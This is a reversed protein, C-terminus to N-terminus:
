NTSGSQLYHEWDSLVGGLRADYTHELIIPLYTTIDKPLSKRNQFLARTLHDDKQTIAARIYTRATENTIANIQAALANALQPDKRRTAILLVFSDNASDLQQLFQAFSGDHKALADAWLDRDNGVELNDSAAFFAEVAHKADYRSVLDIATKRVRIDAAALGIKATDLVFSKVDEHSEKQLTADAYEVVSRMAQKQVYADLHSLGDKACQKIRSDGLRALAILQEGLAHSDREDSLVAVIEDAARQYKLRGLAEAATRRVDWQEHTLLPVLQEAFNWQPHYGAFWAGASLAHWDDSKLQEQTRERIRDTRDDSGADGRRVLIMQGHSLRPLTLEVKGDRYEFPIPTLQSEDFVKVSHPKADEKLAIEVNECEVPRMNYLVIVTGDDSTMPSAMVLPESLVLPREVERKHLPQTLLARGTDAWIVPYGGRRAALATYTLGARHAVYSLKGRGINKEVWALRDDDYTAVVDADKADLDSPMGTQNVEHPRFASKGDWPKVILSSEAPATRDVDYTRVLGALKALLDQPENFENRLAADACTWLLGGSKVWNAIGEQVDGAVVPDLVYLADYDALAGAMVQDETVLEPQYYEHSLALFSARKDAFSSQPNWYENSISYLMAVRSPRMRANALVDDVQAARNNTRHVAQYSGDSESWFGETVAYFPGYNFYSLLRVQNGLMTYARFESPWVCHMMPYNLPQQGRRRAGANFMAVSYAVAQHSDWRWGGSSMWDSVGPMMSESGSALQFMDLPMTSPFYLSHGSLAVFGKMSSNPANRQISEAALNFMRPTLYGSYRRSWYYLRADEKTEALSAVTLMRVDEWSSKGFTQPSLGQQKAWVRFGAHAQPMGGAEMWNKSVADRLSKPKTTDTGKADGLLDDIDLDNILKKKGGGIKIEALKTVIHEDKRIERIALSRVTKKPGVVAFGGSKPLGTFQHVQKGRVFLVATDGEYVIKFPTPTTGINASPRAQSANREPTIGKTTTALNIDPAASVRGMRWEAYRVPKAPDGVAVQFGVWNGQRQVEGELVCDRYDTKRTVLDSGGSVDSYKEGSEDKSFRWLPSSMAERSIEVPEDAIQFISVGDYFDRRRSFYDRYYEDYKQQVQEENFPIMSPPWYHGAHSSWGYLKRNAVPDSADGVCNMGLLRLTKVMYQAADGTAAGWVNSFYLDGRTLPFVQDGTAAVARDYNERAHDRFTRLLHLNTEFDTALSVRLGEPDTWPIERLVFDDHPFVAFQTAGRHVGTAKDGVQLLLHAQANGFKPAREIDQLNYWRTFGTAKHPQPKTSIGNPNLAVRPTSWPTSHIRLSATLSLGATPVDDLRFRIYSAPPQAVDGGFPYLLDTSTSLFGSDIALLDSNAAVANHLRLRYEGPEIDVETLKWWYFPREKDLTELRQDNIWKDRNSTKKPALERLLDAGLSNGKKIGGNRKSDPITALNDLNGQVGSKGVAVRYANEGAPGGLSLDFTAGFTGGVTRQKGALEFRVPVRKRKPAAVRMWLQYRGSFRVHLKVELPRTLTVSQGFLAHKNTSQEPSEGEVTRFDLPKIVVLHKGDHPSPELAATTSSSYLFSSLCLSCVALIRM